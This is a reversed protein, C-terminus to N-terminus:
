TEMYIPFLWGIQSMNKLPTSVVLWWGTPSKFITWGMGALQHRDEFPKFSKELATDQAKKWVVENPSSKITTIQCGFTALINSAPTKFRTMNLVSHYFTFPINEWRNTFWLNRSQASTIEEFSPLAQDYPVGSAKGNQYLLSMCSSAEWNYIYTAKYVGNVMYIYVYSMNYIYIYLNLDGM